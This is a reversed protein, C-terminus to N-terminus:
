ASERGIWKEGAPRRYAAMRDLLSAPDDDALLLARHRSKLLRESVAHDLFALLPDFYGSVNLLGCPKSHLGLQAWTLVEFLEELTGLGGPLALFGDSLDSMVAKREHMSGVIRLENLAPHAVEKAVLVEPIVGTVRGGRALVRQALVGMLGVQAGGYVLESGRAVLQDALAQAAAAYQARAGSNSGCFVCVRALIPKAVHDGLPLGVTPSQGLVRVSALVGM